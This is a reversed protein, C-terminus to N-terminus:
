CQTFLAYMLVNLNNRTSALTELCRRNIISVIPHLLM